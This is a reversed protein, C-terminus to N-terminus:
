LNDTKNLPCIGVHYQIQQSPSAAASGIFIDDGAKKAGKYYKAVSFSDRITIVNSQGSFPSFKIKFDPHETLAYIDSGIVNQAPPKQTVVCAYPFGATSTDFIAEIKSGLVEFRRYM